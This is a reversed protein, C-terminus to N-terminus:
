RSILNVELSLGMFFKARAARVEANSAEDADAPPMENERGFRVKGGTDSVVTV